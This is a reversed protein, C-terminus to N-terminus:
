GRRDSFLPSQLNGSALHNASIASSSALIRGDFLEELNAASQLDSFMANRQMLESDTTQAPVGAPLTATDQQTNAELRVMSAQDSSKKDLTCFTNGSIYVPQETIHVLNLADNM